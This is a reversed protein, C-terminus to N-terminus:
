IETKFAKKKLEQLKKNFNENKPYNRYESMRKLEKISEGKKMREVSKQDVKNLSCKRQM